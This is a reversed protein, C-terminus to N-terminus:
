FNHQLFLHEQPSAPGIEEELSRLGDGMPPAANGPNKAEFNKGEVDGDSISSKMRQSSAVSPFTIWSPARFESRPDDTEAVDTESTSRNSSRQSVKKHLRSSGLVVETPLIPQENSPSGMLQSEEKFGETARDLEEYTFMQARRIKLDDLDPLIKGNEKQFSGNRNRGTKRSSMLRKASCTCNRLRYRVYIVSTLSVVSVLFVAFAVEALIVPLQLSWFKSNKNGSNASAISCNSFCEPSICNSCNYACQRDSMPSCVVSQYMEAPCGSSCSLCIASDTSKCPSSANSFGYFGPACPRPKCIGPSVAVPLSTPFGAGWCVPQLSTTVLIGCTFYDGAAIEYLKVGSPPPTSKEVRYGWCVIGRDLSRIGCAHFRGGVVSLMPDRPALAINLRASQSVSIAEQLDLSRGWCFVRSDTGELIGCVHYGGAAIKQFKMDKPILSIVRSSTEDGWCFVSRNQSFM